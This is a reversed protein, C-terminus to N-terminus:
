AMATDPTLRWMLTAGTQIIDAMKVAPSAIRTMLTVCDTFTPVCRDIRTVMRTGTKSATETAGASITERAWTNKTAWIAKGTIRAKTIRGRVITSTRGAKAFATVTATSIGTSGRTWPGATSRSM